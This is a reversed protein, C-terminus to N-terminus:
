RPPAALRAELATLRAELKQLMHIIVVHTRVADIGVPSKDSGIAEAIADYESKPVDM